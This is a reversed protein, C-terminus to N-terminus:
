QQFNNMKHLATNNLFVFSSIKFIYISSIKFIYLEPSLTVQSLTKGKMCSSRLISAMGTLLIENLKRRDVSMIYQFFYFM